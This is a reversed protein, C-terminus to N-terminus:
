KKERRVTTLHDCIEISVYFDTLYAAASNHTKGGVETPHILPAPSPPTVRVAVLDQLHTIVVHHPAVERGLVLGGRKLRSTEFKADLLFICRTPM